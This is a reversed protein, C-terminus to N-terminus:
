LNGNNLEAVLGANLKLESFQAIPQDQFLSEVFHHSYSANL